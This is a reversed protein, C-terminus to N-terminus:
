VNYLLMEADKLYTESQEAKKMILNTVKNDQQEFQTEIKTLSTDLTKIREDLEQFQGSVRKTLNQELSDLYSVIYDETIQNAELRRKSEAKLINEIKQLSDHVLRIEEDMVTSKDNEKGKAAQQAQAM